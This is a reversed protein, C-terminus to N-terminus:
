ETGERESPCIKKQPGPGMFRGWEKPTFDQNAVRCALDQLEAKPLQWSILGFQDVAAFLMMGDDSFALARILGRSVHHHPMPAAVLERTEFDWLVVESSSNVVAIQRHSPRVVLPSAERALERTPPGVLRPGALDWVAVSGNDSMVILLETDPVFALKAVTHGMRQDSEFVAPLAVANRRSVQATAPPGAAGEADLILVTGNTSGAALRKGDPSFALGSIQDVEPLSFPEGLRRGEEVDWLGLKAQGCDEIGYHPGCGRAVSAVAARKGDSRFEIASVGPYQEVVIRRDALGSEVDWIVIEANRTRNGTVLKRGDPTFRLLQAGYTQEKRTWAFERNQLSRLAVESVPKCSLSDADKAEACRTLAVFRHKPEYALGQIDGDSTVVTAASVLKSVALVGEQVVSALTRTSWDFALPRGLTAFEKPVADTARTSGILINRTEAGWLMEEGDPSLFLTGLLNQGPFVPSPAGTGRRTVFGDDGWSTLVDGGNAVAVEFSGGRHLKMAEVQLSRGLRVVAVDGDNSGAIVTRGDASFAVDSLARHDRRGRFVTVMPYRVAGSDTQWVGLAGSITGLVVSQGDASFAATTGIQRPLPLGLAGVDAPRPLASDSIFDRPMHERLDVHESLSVSPSDLRDLQWRSLITDASSIAYLWRNDKRFVVADIPARHQGILPERIARGTVMDWIEIGTQVCDVGNQALKACGGAAAMRGDPSLAASGIRSIRAQFLRKVGPRSALAAQLAGRADVSAAAHNAAVGLLLAARLNERIQGRAQLALGRARAVALSSAAQVDREAGLARAVRTEAERRTLDVKAAVLLIVLASLPTGVLVVLRRRRRRM